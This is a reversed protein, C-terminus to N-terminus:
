MAPGEPAVVLTRENRYTVQGPGAGPIPRVYRREAVDVPVKAEGRATSYYAALAAVREILDEPVPRGGTALVVHGGAVGRAHFWLDGPAASQLVLANQRSNRGVWVVFGEETELRKPAPPRAAAPARRARVYGAEVLAAHVQDIEARNEALDLDAELQALRALALDVRALREPGGQAALKADDYERFYRQANEVASREPDLPIRLPEGGAGEVVLERQRPAIQTAYALVWEGMERLRDIEEPPRLGRAIADRRRMERERAAALERRVRAKAEGYQEPRSAQAMYASIAESMSAAPRQEPLHHLPHPAYAVVRGGELGVTPVWAHSAPLEVLLARAAALLEAAPAEEAESTGAVRFVVERAVLPSMGAVGEVLRRWLPGGGKSLLARLDGPTLSAISAKGLPPPPQYPHRPLVPRRSQEPAVRKIADVVMGEADVAILNSRRGMVEALLALPGEPGAFELRLIREFGPQTVQALRAGRLRKRLALLLPLPTEPGRRVKEEVLQVRAHEPHASLLLYCRRQRAYVELGLSLEDVLVIEQVRGGALEAALEDAMASTTLADFYM